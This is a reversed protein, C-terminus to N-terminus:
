PFARPLVLLCRCAPMGSIQQPHFDDSRPPRECINCNLCMKRAEMQVCSVMAARSSSLAVFDNMEAIVFRTGAQTPNEDKGEQNPAHM